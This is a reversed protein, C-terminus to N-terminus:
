DKMTWSMATIAFAGQPKRVAMASALGLLLYTLTAVSQNILIRDYIQLLVLPLALGLFNIFFSSVITSRPLARDGVFMSILARVLGASGRKGKRTEGSLSNNHNGSTSFVGIRGQATSAGAPLLERDGTRGITNKM